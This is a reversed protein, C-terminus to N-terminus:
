YNQEFTTKKTSIVLAFQKKQNKPLFFTQKEVSQYCLIHFKLDIASDFRELRNQLGNGLRKALRGQTKRHM